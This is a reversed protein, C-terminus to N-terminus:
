DPDCIPTCSDSLGWSIQVDSPVPDKSAAEMYNQVMRIVLDDTVLSPYDIHFDIESPYHDKGVFEGDENQYVVIVKVM